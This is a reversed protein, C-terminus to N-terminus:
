LANVLRTMKDLSVEFGFRKEEKKMNRYMSLMLNVHRITSLKGDMKLRVIRYVDDYYDFRDLVMKRYKKLDFKGNGKDLVDLFIDCCILSPIIGEGLMPFVCGISEGVGIINGNYFPEMRKPPALRIPRGMKKLVKAEPHQKFFEKVGYYKKMVDGAGMYGRGNDLPFYWFYGKAGKYAIIYFEDIGQVNELLYEYAPILFDQDSKPLLTRHLGTCDIVYDYNNFKFKELIVKVGYSVKVGKLLDSEWVQKDYTVLGKLDLYEFNDNPLELRLKKGVHFVYNGFDLGAQDSFRQLMYRSAGWACVPWHNEEKSAEFIEVNHGRRQLMKALYSGAVGAGAIAIHM